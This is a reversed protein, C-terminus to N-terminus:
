EAEPMSTRNCACPEEWRVVPAIRNALDMIERVQRIPDNHRELDAAIRHLRKAIDTYTMM